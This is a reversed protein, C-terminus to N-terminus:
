AAAPVGTPNGVSTAVQAVDRSIQAAPQSLVFAEGRNNAALVLQGDSVVAFDPHRGLLADISEPRLGGASDSRNLLFRLKHPEYGINIFTALMARTQRLTAEEYALVMVVQDASDLLALNVETLSTATDLLVINYVRRLLAMLKALDPATVMEAMEPRPPAFYVDMGSRDRWAVEKLDNASLKTTPLDVLSPVSEDVRLLARLDAFQLSGDVLAVSQYGAAAISAGINYALTSTGVGGKAGFLAIVRSVASPTVQLHQAHLEKILNIFDFGSFPMSLVRAIGMGQGISVPKQPVTLCIIPIDFGALRIAEAVQLGSMKGRLLADVVVVDPHLERVQDVVLSGDSIVDVLKIQGQADLLGRVFQGVQAVDEVLLLRIQGASHSSGSM